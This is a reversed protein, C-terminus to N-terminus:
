NMLFNIITQTFLTSNQFFWDIQVGSEEDTYNGEFDYGYLDIFNIGLKRM